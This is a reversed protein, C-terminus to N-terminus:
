ENKLSASAREWGGCVGPVSMCVSLCLELVSLNFYIFRLFFSECVFHVNM